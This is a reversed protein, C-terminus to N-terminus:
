KNKTIKQQAEAAQEATVRVLAYDEACGTKIIERLIKLSIDTIATAIKVEPNPTTDLVTCLDSYGRQLTGMLGQAETIEETTLTKCITGCGSLIIFMSVIALTKKM